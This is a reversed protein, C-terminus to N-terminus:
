YILQRLLPTIHYGLGPIKRMAVENYNQEGVIKYMIASATSHHMHSQGIDKFTAQEIVHTDQISQVVDKCNIIFVSVQHASFGPIPGQFLYLPQIINYESILSFVTDPCIYIGLIILMTGLMSICITALIIFFVIDFLIWIKEWLASILKLGHKSLGLITAGLVFTFSLSFTLIFHSTPAFGYPVMGILNNILIFVFLVYM